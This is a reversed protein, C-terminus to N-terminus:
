APEHPPEREAEDVLRELAELRSAFDAVCSLRAATEILRALEGAEYPTLEGEAVARTVAAMAPPLDAASKIEPLAVAVARVPRPMATQFAAKLLGRDGGFAADLLSRTLDPAADHLMAEALRTAENRSGAPRGAPNGSQGKQFPRGPGRRRQKILPNVAM